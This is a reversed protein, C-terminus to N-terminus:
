LYRSPTGTMIPAMGAAALVAMRAESYPAFLSNADLITNIEVKNETM